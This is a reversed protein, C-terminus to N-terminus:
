FHLKNVHWIMHLRPHSKIESWSLSKSVSSNNGVWNTALVLISAIETWPNEKKTWRVVIVSWFTSKWHGCNVLSGYPVQRNVQFTNHHENQNINSKNNQKLIGKHSLAKIISVNKNSNHIRKWWIATRGEDNKTWSLWIQKQRDTLSSRFAVPANSIIPMRMSSASCLISICKGYRALTNSPYIEEYILNRDELRRQQHQSWIRSDPVLYFNYRNQDTSKICFIFGHISLQKGFICIVGIIEERHGWIKTM